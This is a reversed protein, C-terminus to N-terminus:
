RSVKNKIGRGGGGKGGKAKGAGGAGGGRRGGRRDAAAATALEHNNPSKGDMMLLGQHGARKAKELKILYKQAHTRIQVVTRTKVVEGIM